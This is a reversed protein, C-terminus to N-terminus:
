RRTAKKKVVKGMLDHPDPGFIRHARYVDAATVPCNVIAGSKLLEVTDQTSAYGLSRQLERARKADLVERKTYIKTPDDADFGVLAKEHVENVFDQMKCTYLNTYDDKIFNVTRGNPLKVVFAEGPFYSVKLNPNSEITDLSLVSTVVRPDYFVRGFFPLNGSKTIVSQQGGIGHFTRSVDERVDSLIWRKNFISQTAGSDLVVLDQLQSRISAKLVFQNVPLDSREASLDDNLLGEVSEEQEAIVCLVLGGYESDKQVDQEKLKPCHPKIHGKEGCLYCTKEKEWDKPDKKEGKKNNPKKGAKKEHNKGKVTIFAAGEEANVFGKRGGVPVVWRLLMEYADDLTQPFEMMNLQVNNQLNAKFESYKENNCKFIFDAAQTPEDPTEEPGGVARLADIYQMYRGKWHILTEDRRQYSNNYTSKAEQIAFVGTTRTYTAMIVRIALLLRLPDNGPRIHAEYDIHAKVRDKVDDSFSDWMDAQLKPKDQRMQHNDKRVLKNSERVEEAIEEPTMNGDDVDEPRVLPESYYVETRFFHGLNGYTALAYTSMRDEWERLNSGKHPHFVLKPIFEEDDKTSEKKEVKGKNFNKQYKKSM